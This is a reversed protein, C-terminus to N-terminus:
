SLAWALTRGEPRPQLHRSGVTEQVLCPRSGNGGTRGRGALTTTHDVQAWRGSVGHLRDQLQDGERYEDDGHGAAEHGGEAGSRCRLDLDAGLERGDPGSGRHHHGHGCGAPAEGVEAELEDLAVLHGHEGLLGVAGERGPTEEPLTGLVILDAHLDAALEKGVQPLPLRHQAGGRAPRAGPQARRLRHDV